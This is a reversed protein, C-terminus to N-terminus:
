GAPESAPGVKVTIKNISEQVLRLAEDVTDAKGSVVAIRDWSSRLENTRDGAHVVVDCTMVGPVAKAEDHGEVSLVEGAEAALFWVAGGYAARRPLEISVPEGRMVRYYAQVIDVPYCNEILEIIGDGPMRGACEVLYPTGDRVIWECHLFGTRFGTADVLARTGAALAETLEDSIQAPVTHGLEIPRPGDYLVKGTVNAFLQEGDRVLMEVSFEEGHVYEEVLMRLPFQRDPVFPGEDQKLAQAWADEIGSVEHLIFAGVAAQRNAPKLVVSGGHEIMFDRAEDPGSIEKSAPNAIGAARTVLRLQTKDRLLEAAGLTAGPLGWREALRAAFPVSYEIGPVVGIVNLDRFRHYFQDAAAPLQYEWDVLGRIYPMDIKTRHERKRAVDPEEVWLVSNPSMFKELANRMAVTFGVVLVTPAGGALYDIEETM